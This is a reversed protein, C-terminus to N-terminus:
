IFYFEFQSTSWRQYTKRTQKGIIANLTNIIASFITGTGEKRKKKKTEDKVLLETEETQIEEVQNPHIEMTEIDIQNEPIEAVGTGSM